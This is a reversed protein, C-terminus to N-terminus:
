LHETALVLLVELLVLVIPLILDHFAEPALLKVADGADHLAALSVLLLIESLADLHRQEEL